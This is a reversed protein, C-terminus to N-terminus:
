APVRPPVPASTDASAFSGNPRCRSRTAVGHRGHTGIVVLDAPWPTAQEVVVDAVRQLAYEIMVAEACVGRRAAHALAAALIARGTEKREEVLDIGHVVDGAVATAKSLDDVAHRRRLTGGSLRTM